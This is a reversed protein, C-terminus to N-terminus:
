NVPPFRFGNLYANIKNFNADIKKASGSVFLFGIYKGNTWSKIKITNGTEDEWQDILGRANPYSDMTHGYGYGLASKIKFVTKLYDIYTVMLKEGEDLKMAAGPLDVCILGSELSDFECTMQYIIASDPTYSKGAEGPNCFFYAQCKSEGINYKKLTTQAISTAHILALGIFFSWIKM